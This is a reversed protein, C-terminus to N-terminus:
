KPKSRIWNGQKDMGDAGCKLHSRLEKPVLQYSATRQRLTKRVGDEPGSRAREEPMM